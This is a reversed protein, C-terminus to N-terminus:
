SPFSNLTRLFHRTSCVCSMTAFRMTPGHPCRVVGASPALGDVLTALLWSLLALLARSRVPRLPLFPSILALSLPSFLFCCVARQRGNGSCCFRSLWQLLHWGCCCCCSCCCRCCCRLAYSELSESDSYMRTFNSSSNSCGYLSGDENAVPRRVTVGKDIPKFVASTMVFSM